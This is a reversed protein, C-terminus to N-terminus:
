VFLSWVGGPVELFINERQEGERREKEEGINVGGRSVGWGGGGGRGATGM